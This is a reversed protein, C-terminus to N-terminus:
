WFRNRLKQTVANTVAEVEELGARHILILYGIAFVLSFVGVRVIDPVAVFEGVVLVPYSMAACLCIIALSRWKLLESVSIFYVKLICWGLFLLQIVYGLVLGVAPGFIAIHQFYNFFILICVINVGLLLGNGALLLRNRNAARLPSSLEFCQIVMVFVLIRFISIAESYQETFVLPILIDAYWLLVVFTPIILFSYAINGRKWLRLRDTNDRAAEHVMDPFIADSIASRVIDLVPVQYSGITYIALAAVGLKAAIAIQGIYLNLFHLSSALGLPVIFTLQRRLVTPDIILSLLQERHMIVIVVLLRMIEVFILANLVADVSNTIAATGLVATLRVVTRSTSYYFVNNAQKRALWYSEIVDLNVFLFVYIMLPALFDASTNGIIPGRFLWVFFCVLTSTSLVLWNTHSIYHRTNAPQHPIFYLLNSPISFTAISALLMAYAMFERYQGFSSPDLIRVLLIPSLILLSYNAFRSFALIATSKM